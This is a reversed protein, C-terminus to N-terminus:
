KAIQRTANLHMLKVSTFIFSVLIVKVQAGQFSLGLAIVCECNSFHIRVEGFIEICKASQKVASIRPLDFRRKLCSDQRSPCYLAAKTRRLFPDTTVLHQYRFGTEPRMRDTFDGITNM